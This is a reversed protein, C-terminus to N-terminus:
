QGNITLQDIEGEFHNHIHINIVPQFNDEDGTEIGANDCLMPRMDKSRMDSFLASLEELIM